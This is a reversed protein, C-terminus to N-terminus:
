KTRIEVPRIKLNDPDDLNDLFLIVDTSSDFIWAAKTSGYKLKPVAALMGPKEPNKNLYDYINRNAKVLKIKNINNVNKLLATDGTVADIIFIHRTTEGDSILPILIFRVPLSVETQLRFVDFLNIVDKSTALKEPDKKDM